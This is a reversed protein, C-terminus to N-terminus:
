RVVVDLVTAAVPHPDVRPKGTANDIQVFRSDAWGHAKAQALQEPTWDAIDNGDNWIPEPLRWNTGSIFDEVSGEADFALVIHYIGPTEPATFRIRTRRPQHEAPTFLPALDLFNTKRDGWLAAAGLIVSASGWYSSYELMLNGSIVEGPKVTFVRKEPSVRQGNIVGSILRLSPNNGDVVNIRSAVAEKMGKATFRLSIPGEGDVYVDKFEARGDVSPVQLTGVIGPRSEIVSITVTDSAGLVRRGNRDRIEVVPPPVVLANASLPQTTIALQSAKPAQLQYPIAISAVVVASLAAIRAPNSLGIRQTFPLSSVLRGAAESPSTEGLMSSALQISSRRDGSSRAVAVARSFTAEVEDRRGGAELHRIAIRLQSLDGPANRSLASGLAGQLQERAQGPVMRVVTEAISDHTCQWRNGTSSALALQDLIALDGDV